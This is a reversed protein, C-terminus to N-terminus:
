ALPDLFRNYYVFRFLKKSHYGGQDSHFAIIDNHRLKIPQQSGLRNGKYEITNYYQLNPVLTTQSSTLDLDAVHLPLGPILIHAGQGSGIRITGRAPLRISLGEEIKDAYANSVFKLQPNQQKQLKPYDMVVTQKGYPYNGMSETYEFGAGARLAAMYSPSTAFSLVLGLMGGLLSFGFVDEWGSPKQVIEGQGSALWEFILAALLGTTSSAILSTWLRQQFRKKDGAEISRWRWTLGEAIGVAAGILVWGLIRVAPDSMTLVLDPTFLIKAIGGSILGIALGLGAAISLPLPSTRLSLKPRTPNSLFIDTIVMGIALSMAVCPFLAVVPLQQLWKLDSLIVQGISWGILASAIGSLIYLYVRM